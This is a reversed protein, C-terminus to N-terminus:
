KKVVKITRTGASVIYIGRELSELSVTGYGSAVSRGSLNYVRIEHGECTFVNDRFDYTVNQEIEKVGSSSPEVFSLTKVDDIRYTDELTGSKIIVNEDSYTVVPKSSLVYTAAPGEYLTVKLAYDDARAVTLSLAMALLLPYKKM